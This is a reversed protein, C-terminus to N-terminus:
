TELEEAIVEATEAIRIPRLAMCHSDPGPQRPEPAPEATEAIAGVEVPRPAPDPFLTVGLVDQVGAAIAAERVASVKSIEGAFRGANLALALGGDAEIAQFVQWSERALQETLAEFTWAGAAPDEVQGLGCEQQLILQINRALRGARPDPPGIADTFCGLVMADAGGAAGAVGAATLRLLNTWPDLATLMRRSSRAEIRVPTGAGCAGTIRAWIERAARLKAISTLIEGDVCVGLVIAEFAQRLPLGAGVLAKAYAVGAAAMMGLEQPASGGAEHAARGTALFLTAKPFTPALEAATRAAREVHAEIPGLTEGAEAFATLPDMHFALAAAPAGKAVASLWRAADPGLLGADLAAPAADLVVGELAGALAEQSAPRSLLISTAGGELADLVCANATAPDAHDVRARIDWAPDAIQARTLPQRRAPQAEPGYLPEIVLGEATRCTLGSLPAGKLVREAAKLWREKASPQALDDM